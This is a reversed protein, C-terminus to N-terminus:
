AHYRQPSSRSACPCASPEACRVPLGAGPRARAPGFSVPRCGTPLLGSPFNMGSTSLLLASAPLTPMLMLLTRYSFHFTPPKEQSRSKAHRTRVSALAATSAEAKHKAIATRDAATLALYGSGPLVGARLALCDHREDKVRTRPRSGNIGSREITQVTGSTRPRRTASSEKSGGWEGSEKLAATVNHQGKLQLSVSRLPYM